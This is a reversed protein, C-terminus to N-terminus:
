FQINRPRLIRTHYGYWVAGYYQTRVSAVVCIYDFNCLVAPWYCPCPVIRDYVWLISVIWAINHISSQITYKEAPIRILTNIYIWTPDTMCNACPRLVASNIMCMTRSHEMNKTGLNRTEILVHATKTSLFSRGGGM